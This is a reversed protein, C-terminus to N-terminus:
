VASERIIEISGKIGLKIIGPIKGNTRAHKANESVHILMNSEDIFSKIKTKDFLPVFAIPKRYKYIITKSFHDQPLTMLVFGDSTILQKPLGMAGSYSIVLPESALEILEQAFDPLEKVFRCIMDISNVLLYNESIKLDVFKEINIIAENSLANFGFGIHTETSFLILKNEQLAKICLSIDTDLDIM